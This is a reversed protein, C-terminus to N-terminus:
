NKLGPTEFNPESTGAAHNKFEGHDIQRLAEQNKRFLLIPIILDIKADQLRLALEQPRLVMFM